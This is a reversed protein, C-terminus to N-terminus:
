EWVTLAQHRSLEVHPSLKDWDSPLYLDILNQVAMPILIRSYVSRRIQAKKLETM